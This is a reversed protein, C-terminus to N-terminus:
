VGAPIMPIAEDPREGSQAYEPVLSLTGSDDLRPFMVSYEVTSYDPVFNSGDLDTFLPRGDLYLNWCIVTDTGSADEGEQAAIWSAAQEPSILRITGTIDVAGMVMEAEAKYAAAPSTGQWAQVASNRALTFRVFAKESEGFSERFTSGDQYKIATGCRVSLLFSLTDAASEEPVVCEKWGTVTGDAGRSEDGAVIDAYGGDELDLGDMVNCYPSKLWRQGKGDLWSYEKQVDPYYAPNEGIIWNEEVIDWAIGEDPAGEFLEILDTVPGIRYSVFVRNGEYYAQCIEVPIGAETTLSASVNEAVADLVELRPDAYESQALEGFVGSGSACAASLSLILLSFAVIFATMKKM